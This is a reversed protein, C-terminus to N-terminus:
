EPRSIPSAIARQAPRHGGDNEHTVSMDLPDCGLPKAAAGFEREGIETAPLRWRHRAVNRRGPLRIGNVRAREAAAAVGTRRDRRWKLEFRLRDRPEGVDIIAFPLAQRPALRFLAPRVLGLEPKACRM